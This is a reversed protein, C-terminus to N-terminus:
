WEGLGQPDAGAQTKKGAVSWTPNRELGTRM